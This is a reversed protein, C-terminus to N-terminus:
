CMDLCKKYPTAQKNVVAQCHAAQTLLALQELSEFKYENVFETKFAQYTRESVANNYSMGSASLSRQIGNTMLLEDLKRNVFETDV